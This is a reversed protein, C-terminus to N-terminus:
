GKKVDQLESTVDQLEATANQLESIVTSTHHMLEDCRWSPNIFLIACFVHVQRYIIVIEEKNVILSIRYTIAKLCYTCIADAIALLVKELTFLNVIKHNM